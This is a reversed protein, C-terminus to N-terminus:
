VLQLTDTDGTVIYTEVGERAAVRGLTGIVDDAEYGPIMFIPINLAEVVEKVREQQQRMEDPMPPRHAKYTALLDDRFSGGKDFAVVIYAPTFARLADLMMSTFGFTANILEGTSTAMTQPLAFFARYLLAHGDILVIREKAM